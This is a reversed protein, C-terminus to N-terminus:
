SEQAEEEAAREQRMVGCVAQAKCSDCDSKGRPEAKFRGSKWRAVREGVAAELMSWAQGADMEIRSGVGKRLNVLKGPEKGVVEPFFIGKNRGGDTTLAVFQLAVVEKRLSQRAAIGYLPLQLRYGSEIMQTGHPVSSQSSSKFDQILLGQKLEIVRDPIGHIEAGGVRAIFSQDDLALTPNDEGIRERVEREQEVFTGLIRVLRARIQPELGPVQSLGRPREEKWAADLAQSATLEPWGRLIKQVATHLLKGREDRWLDWESERLDELKWARLALAQFECRSAMEIDSVSLKELRPPSELKVESEPASLLSRFGGRRVPHAGREGLDELTFSWGWSGLQARLAEFPEEREKASSNWHAHFFSMRHARGLWSGLGALREERDVRASRVGFEAALKERDRASWWLDGGSERAVAGWHEPLAGLVILHAFEEDRPWQGMRYVRAGQGLEPKFAPTTPPVREVRQQLRELVWLLPRKRTSDGLLRLDAEWESWAKEWRECAPAALWEKCLKLHLAKWLAPPKRGEFRGALDHLTTLIESVGEGSIGRLGRDVDRLLGREGMARHVREVAMPSWRGKRMGWALLEAVSERAFRSSPLRLLLLGAKFSEDLRSQDPDRDDELEIGRDKLARRM